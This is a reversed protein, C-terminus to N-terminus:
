YATRRGDVGIKEVRVANTITNELLWLSGRADVLGGSPSWPFNTKIIVEKGHLTFKKVERNKYVAAYINGEKDDWVGFVSNQNEVNFETMKKDAIQSAILQVKGQQNIKKIDQFDVVYVEGDDTSKMWRINKFCADGVITVSHDTNQRSVKQCPNSRDASYMRGLHDRAFSYETRFGETDPIIKEFKGDSSFQWVYYAWTNKQEGNYWLHEGFLNDNGDMFLEHTHVNPVVVKKKGDVGIKWVQTLDTYFINGKSDEVIGIGPHAHVTTVGFFLFVAIWTKM